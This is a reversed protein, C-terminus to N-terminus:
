EDAILEQELRLLSERVSALEIPSRLRCKEAFHWEATSEMAWPKHALLAEQMFQVFASSGWVPNEWYTGIRKFSDVEEAKM